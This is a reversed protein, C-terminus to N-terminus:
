GYRRRKVYFRRCPLVWCCFSIERNPNVRGWFGKGERGRCTASDQLVAGVSGIVCDVAGSVLNRFMRAVSNSASTKVHKTLCCQSILTRSQANTNTQKDTGAEKVFTSSHTCSFWYRWLALLVHQEHIQSPSNISVCWINRTRQKKRTLSRTTAQSNPFFIPLWEFKNGIMHVWWVNM